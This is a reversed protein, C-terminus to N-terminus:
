AERINFDPKLDPPLVCEIEFHRPVPTTLAQTAFSLWRWGADFNLRERIIQPCSFFGHVAVPKMVEQAM